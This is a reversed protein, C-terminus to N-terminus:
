LSVCSQIEQIVEPPLLHAAAELANDLQATDRAGALVCPILPNAMVWGMALRSMSIGTRASVARLKEVIAFNEERFYIDAHAPKIAFRTGEPLANRDPSYKGTLFGAALPSYALVAIGRQACFPLVEAEIERAVLNYVPQIATIPAFGYRAALEAAQRLQAASFNSCGIARAKGAEVVATMSELATELPVAPDFQHMLYIDVCSTRLRHLSADIAERVHGRTFQRTVKTVLTFRDRCRNREMWQGLIRESAGEGYAEATDLLTVGEELAHFLISESQAEGIERGFTVCGLGVRSLNM